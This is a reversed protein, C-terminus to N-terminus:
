SAMTSFDGLTGDLCHGSAVPGASADVPAVVPAGSTPPPIGGAGAPTAVVVPRDLTTCDIDM